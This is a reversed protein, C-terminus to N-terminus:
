SLIQLYKEFMSDLSYKQLAEERTQQCLTNNLNKDSLVRNIKHALEEANELTFLLGTKEPVIQEKIGKVNSAIIPLGVAMAQMIATSLTEGYSSHLYISLSQLLKAVERERLMGVFRVKSRLNLLNTENEWQQRLPGDGAILLEIQSFFSTDRLLNMARLLTSIDKTEVLRAVMGFRIKETTNNEAPSFLNTDIGSPIIHTNKPPNKFITARYEHSLYIVQNSIKPLIKSLLKDIRRKLHNAHHEMVILTYGCKQRFFSLMPVIPPLHCLVYKPKTRCIYELINKQEKIGLGGAMEKKVFIYEISLENCADLYQTPVEEIGYFLISWSFQRLADSKVLNFAVTTQGGLGSYIIQLVKPHHM